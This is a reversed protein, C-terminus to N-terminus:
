ATPGATRRYVEAVATRIHADTVIAPDAGPPPPPSYQAVAYAYVSAITDGEPTIPCASLQRANMRAWAEANDVGDAAAASILRDLLDSDSAARSIGSLTTDPM